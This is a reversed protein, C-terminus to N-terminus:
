DQLIVSDIYAQTLPEDWFIMIDLQLSNANQLNPTNKSEQLHCPLTVYMELGSTDKIGPPFLSSLPQKKTM